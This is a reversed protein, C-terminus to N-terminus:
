NCCDALHLLMGNIATFMCEFLLSEGTTLPYDEEDGAILPYTGFPNNPDM